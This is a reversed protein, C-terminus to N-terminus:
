WLGRPLFENWANRFNRSLIADVMRAVEISLSEGGFTGSAHLGVSGFVAAVSLGHVDLGFWFGCFVVILKKFKKKFLCNRLDDLVFVRLFYVCPIGSLGSAGLGGGSRDM